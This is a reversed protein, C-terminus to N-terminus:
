GEARSSSSHEVLIAELLDGGAQERFELRIGEVNYKESIVDFATEVDARILLPDSLVIRAGGEGDWRPAMEFVVTCINQFLERRSRARLLRGVPSGQRPVSRVLSM